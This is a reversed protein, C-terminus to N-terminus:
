PLQRPVSSPCFLQTVYVGPLAFDQIVVPRTMAFPREAGALCPPVETTANITLVQGLGIQPLLYTGDARTKTAIPLGAGAVTVAVGGVGQGTTTNTVRGEIRGIDAARKRRLALDVHAARGSRVEADRRVTDYLNSWAVISVVTSAAGDDVPVPVAFSYRGDADTAGQLRQVGRQWEVVAHPLPKGGIADTVVGTILGSAPAPRPASTAAGASEASGGAGPMASCNATAAVLIAAGM